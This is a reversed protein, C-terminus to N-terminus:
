YCSSDYYNVLYSQVNYDSSLLDTLTTKLSCLFMDELEEQNDIEYCGDGDYGVNASKLDKLKILIKSLDEKVERKLIQVKSEHALAEAETKFEKGDATRYIISVAM